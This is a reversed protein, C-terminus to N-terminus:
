GGMGAAGRTNITITLAVPTREGEFADGGYVVGAGPNILYHHHLLLKQVTNYIECRLSEFYLLCM